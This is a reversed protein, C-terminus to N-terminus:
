DYMKPSLKLNGRNDKVRECCIVLDLSVFVTIVYIDRYNTRPEEEDNPFRCSFDFNSERSAGVQMMM